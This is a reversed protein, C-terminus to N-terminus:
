RLHFQVVIHFKVLLLITVSDTCWTNDYDLETIAYLIMTPTMAVVVVVVVVLVVLLSVCRYLVPTPPMHGSAKLYGGGM